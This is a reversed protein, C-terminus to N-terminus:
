TWNKRGYMCIFGLRSPMTLICITIIHQLRIALTRGAQCFNIAFDIVKISLSFHLESPLVNGVCRIVKSFVTRRFRAFCGNLTSSVVELRLASKHLSPRFIAFAIIVVLSEFHCFLPDVMVSNLIVKVFVAVGYSTPHVNVSVAIVETFVSCHDRSRKFHIAFRIHCSVIADEACAPLFRISRFLIEIFASVLYFICEM